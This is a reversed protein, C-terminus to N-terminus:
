MHHNNSLVERFFTALDQSKVRGKNDVDVARFVMEPTLGIVV